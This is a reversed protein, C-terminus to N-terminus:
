MRKRLDAALADPGIVEDYHTLFKGNPGMLYITSSHNMAYGGGKLPQRAAYVSYAHSIGAIAAGSGTLGVFRPGFSNLYSKLVKPTDRAPDITVFVPTVGTATPGLKELAQQMVALTTPCVDPCYTYGFYILLYQGRFDKDTRTAGNQDVLTFPGGIAAAGQAVGVARDGAYSLLGGIIAALAILYPILALPTRIM